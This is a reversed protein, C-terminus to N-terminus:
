QWTWKLIGYKEDSKQWVYVDGNPAVVPEGYEVYVGRPAGQGPTQILEEHARPILIEATKKGNKDFRTIRGMAIGYVFGSVDRAAIKFDQEADLDINKDPFVVTVRYTTATIKMSRVMVAERDKQSLPAVANGENGKAADWKLESVLKGESSFVMQKRNVLDTIIVHKEPTIGEISPLVSLGGESRVGFQGAGPGCKGSIIEVADSWAAQVSGSTLVILCFSLATFSNRLTMNMEKIM